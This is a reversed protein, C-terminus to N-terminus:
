SEFPLDLLEQDNHPTLPQFTKHDQLLFTQNLYEMMVGGADVHLTAQHPNELGFIVIRNKIKKYGSFQLPSLWFEVNIEHPVQGEDQGLLSELLQHSEEQPNQGLIFSRVLLLSDQMVQIDDFYVPPTEHQAVQFGAAAQEQGTEPLPDKLPAEAPKSTVFSPPTAHIVPQSPSDNQRNFYWYVMGSGLFLGLVLGLGAYTLGIDKQRDM